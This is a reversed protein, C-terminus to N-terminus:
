IMLPIDLMIAPQKRRVESVELTLIEMLADRFLVRRHITEGHLHVLRWGESVFPGIIWSNAGLGRGGGAEGGECAPNKMKLWDPSRVSCYTSDKRKSVIGELGMNCAYNFVAKGDDCELHRRKLGGTTPRVIIITCNENEIEIM